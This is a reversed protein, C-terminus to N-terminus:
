KLGLQKKLQKREKKLRKEEKKLDKKSPKANESRIVVVPKKSVKVVKRAVTGILASSHGTLGRGGIVLISADLLQAVEVIRSAPLGPVLHRTAADVMKLDPHETKLSRLFDEMMKEAVDQMPQLPETAAKRYFGPAAAMDHVVHLLVLPEQTLAAYRDAWIIAARSDESFDVAVLVCKCEAAVVDINESEIEAM